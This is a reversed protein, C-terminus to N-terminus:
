EGGEKEPTIGKWWTEDFDRVAADPTEGFGAVGMVLDEGYLACWMDGDLYVAPRFLVSPRRMEHSVSIIEQQLMARAHGIDFAERAARTLVDNSNVGSIRSRVADYTAQYSDSM